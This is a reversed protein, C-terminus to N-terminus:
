PRREKDETFSSLLKTITVQITFEETMRIFSANQDEARKESHILIANRTTATRFCDKM